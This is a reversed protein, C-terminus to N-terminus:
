RIRALLERRRALRAWSRGCVFWCLLAAERLSAVLNGITPLWRAEAPVPRAQMGLHRAYCMARALHFRSTVIGVRAQAPLLGRAHRLNEFTDTSVEELQIRGPALGCEQTLWRQGAAAESPRGGGTLLLPLEPNADVVAAARALRSRYVPSPRGSPDLLYGCVVLWDIDPRRTRALAGGLVWLWTVALVLGGTALIALASVLLSERLAPDALARRLTLSSVTSM